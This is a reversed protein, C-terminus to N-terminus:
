GARNREDSKAEAYGEMRSDEEHGEPHGPPRESAREETPTVPVGSREEAAGREGGQRKAGETM